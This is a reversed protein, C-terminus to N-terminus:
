APRISWALVTSPASGCGSKAEGPVQESGAVGVVAPFDSSSYIWSANAVVGNCNAPGIHLGFSDALDSLGQVGWDFVDTIQKGKEFGGLPGVAGGLITGVIVAVLPVIDDM